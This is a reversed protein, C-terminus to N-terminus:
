STSRPFALARHRPYAPGASVNPMISTISHSVALVIAFQPDWCTVPGAPLCDCGHVTLAARIREPWGRGQNQSHEERM